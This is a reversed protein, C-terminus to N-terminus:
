IFNIGNMIFLLIIEECKDNELASIIILQNKDKDKALKKNLLNNKIKLFL